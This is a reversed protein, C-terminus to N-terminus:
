LSVFKEVESALARFASSTRMRQAIEPDRSGDCIHKREETCSSISDSLILIITAIPSVLKKLDIRYWRNKTTDIGFKSVLVLLNSIDLVTKNHCLITALITKSLQPFNERSCLQHNQKSGIGDFM